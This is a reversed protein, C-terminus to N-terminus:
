RVTPQAQTSSPGKRPWGSIVRRLPGGGTAPAEGWYWAAEADLTFEGAYTVEGSAGWFLRLSRGEAAHDQVSRNGHIMKRDGRQGEGTYHFVDGEWHDYYGHTAGVAPESFVLVNPTQASPGIGGQRRGGYCRHLEVRRISNGPQLNWEM